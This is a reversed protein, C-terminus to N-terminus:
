QPQQRRPVASQVDPLDIGSVVACSEAAYIVRTLRLGTAGHKHPKGTSRGICWFDPTLDVAQSGTSGRATIGLKAITSRATAPPISDSPDSSSEQIVWITDATGTLRKWHFVSSDIGVVSDPTVTTSDLKDWTHAYIRFSAIEDLDTTNMEVFFNNTMQVAIPKTENIKLSFNDQWYLDALYAPTSVSASANGTEGVAAAACSGTQEWEDVIVTATEGTDSMINRFVLYFWVISDTESYAGDDDIFLTDASTTISIGGVGGGAWTGATDFTQYSLRTTDFVVTATIGGIPDFNNVAQLPVKINTGVSGSVDTPWVDGTYTLLTVSGNTVSAPRYTSMGDVSFVNNDDPYPLTLDFESGDTQCATSWYYNVLDGGEALDQPNTLQFNLTLSTATQVVKYTDIGLNTELFYTAEWSSLSLETSDWEVKVSFWDVEYSNSEISFSTTKNGPIDGEVSSMFYGSGTLPDTAAQAGVTGERQAAATQSWLMTLALALFLCRKVSEM